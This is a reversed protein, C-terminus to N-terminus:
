LGLSKNMSNKVKETPLTKGDRKFSIHRREDEAIRSNDMVIFAYILGPFYFACTLLSCILVYKIGKFGRSMFVGFPPLLITIIMRPLWMSVCSGTTAHKRSMIGFVLDGRMKGLLLNSFSEFISVFIDWLVSGFSKIMDIITEFLYVIFKAIPGADNKTMILDRQADNILGHKMNADKFIMSEDREIKGASTCRKGILHSDRNYISECEGSECEANTNCERGFASDAQICFRGKPDDKEDYVTECVNTDCDTDIKCKNGYIVNDGM